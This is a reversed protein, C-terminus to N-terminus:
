AYLGLTEVINCVRNAEPLSLGAATQLRFLLLPNFKKETTKIAGNEKANKFIRDLNNNYKQSATLM